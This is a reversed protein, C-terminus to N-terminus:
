GAERAAGGRRDLAGLPYLRTVHGVKRGPRAQKGYLHLAAGSQAAVSEWAGGEEGLLNRMQADSHRSASGAPWGCIARIHQEFQSIACAELTWHGSNHVRPAIENVLLDGGACFMEVALVGIHDLGEAIRRATAEAKGRLDPAIQAPARAQRLIGGAHLTEVPDYACFGGDAGRVGILAIECDFAIRQELVCDGGGLERLAARAAARSAVARQGRGDYGARRTKLIAPLGAAALGAELDREGDVPAFGALGIGASQVFRKELLRDQTIRLSEAGPRVLARGGLFALSALPINEFEFTIVDCAEAFGALAAEDAYGAAIHRAATQAAVSEEPCYIWVSFGLRAAAMALMRGLQGGGLIGIRGGPPVPLRGGGAARSM